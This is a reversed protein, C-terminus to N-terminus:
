DSGPVRARVAPIVEEAFLRAAARVIAPDMGPYHMRAIFTFRPGAVRAIDALEAVCAAVEAPAGCIIKRACRPRRNSASLRPCGFRGSAGGPGNPM